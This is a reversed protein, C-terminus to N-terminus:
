THRCKNYINYVLHTHRCPNVRCGHMFIVWSDLIDLHPKVKIPSKAMRIAIAYEAHNKYGLLQAMANRM